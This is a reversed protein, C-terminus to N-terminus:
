NEQSLGVVFEIADGVTKANFQEMPIQVAFREELQFVLDVAQLSDIGFSRLESEANCAAGDLGLNQVFERILTMVEDAHVLGLRRTDGAPRESARNAVAFDLTVLIYCYQHATACL